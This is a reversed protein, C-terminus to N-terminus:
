NNNEYIYARLSYSYKGGDKIEFDFKSKIGSQLHQFNLIKIEEVDSNEDEGVAFIRITGRSVNKPPTVVLRYNKEGTKIIRHKCDIFKGTPKNVIDEGESDEIGTHIARSKRKKLGKLTRIAPNEAGDQIIGNVKESSLDGSGKETLIKSLTEEVSETSIIKATVQSTIKEVPKNQNFSNVAVSNFQLMSGLGQVDTEVEGVQEGLSRVTERVWDKLEQLYKKALAVKPHRNPEWKDHTPTEMQRFFENLEYGELTLIGSFSISRSIRDMDFIKMGSKRVVLVKRNLNEKEDVIVQLKLTGLDHFNKSFNKVEVEKATLVKYYSNANKLNEKYTQIFKGLTKHTLDEQEDENQVKVALKGWYISMLFNEILEVYVDDKWTEKGNFGFIFIDTGVFDKQCKRECLRDLESIKEVPQNKNPNGFYGVGTTANGNKEFTVLRAVGQAARELNRNLTRYFVMRYHSNAFPANKGIGFSGASDGTKNAGGDVKILSNWGQWSSSNYPNDLGTTFFDSARLVFNTPKNIQEIANNLDDATNLNEKWYDKCALLIKKFDEYGPIKKTSITQRSFTVYVAHEGIAADLSNQCIERALAATKNGTFTQIGAESWGRIQGDSNAPFNWKMEM